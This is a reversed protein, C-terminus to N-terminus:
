RHEFPPYPDERVQQYYDERGKTCDIMERFFKNRVRIQRAIKSELKKGIEKKGHSFYTRITPLGTLQLKYWRHDVSHTEDHEFGFKNRLADEIERPKYPM